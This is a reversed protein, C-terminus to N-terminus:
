ARRGVRQAVWASANPRSSSLRCTGIRTAVLTNGSVVQRRRLGRLRRDALVVHATVGSCIAITAAPTALPPLMM